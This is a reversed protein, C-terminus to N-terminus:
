CYEISFFNLNIIVKSNCRNHYTIIGGAFSLFFLTCVTVGCDNGSVRLYSLIDLKPINYNAVVISVLM